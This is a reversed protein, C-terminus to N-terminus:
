GVGTCLELEGTEAVRLGPPNLGGAIWGRAHRHDVDVCPRLAARREGAPSFALLSLTQGRTPLTPPSSCHQALNRKEPM